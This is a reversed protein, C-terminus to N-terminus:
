MAWAPAYFRALVVQGCLAKKRCFSQGQQEPQSLRRELEDSVQETLGAYQVPGSSGTSVGSAPSPKTYYAPPSEALANERGASLGLGAFQISILAIWAWVPRVSLLPM